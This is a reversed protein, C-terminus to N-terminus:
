NAPKRWEKVMADSPLYQGGQKYESNIMIPVPAGKSIQGIFSGMTSLNDQPRYKLKGWPMDVELGSMADVVKETDPSGAKKFAEALTKITTYGMISSIAPHVGFRKEYAKRFADHEPTKVDNWPYGTVWWGAPADDKLPELNEPEGALEGLVARGEFLGETGGARVFKLLDTAFLVSFIGDPKADLLSQVVASADIKGLPVAQEAVFTVDPQAKQLMQKFNTVSAQGFEYNPYVLAWRKKGLTAAKEALIASQTYTGARLRFGYRHGEQYIQRDSLSLTALFLVKNQRAFENLALAVSSLMSGSIAQVHERSILGEAARIADGATAKDDRTIVVLRKGNIGGAANIEDVALDMGNKYPTCHEPFNTYSNIDGIKIVDEASAPVALALASAGIVIAGWLSVMRSKAM